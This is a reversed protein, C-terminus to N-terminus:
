GSYFYVGQYPVGQYEVMFEILMEEPDFDLFLDPYLWKAIYCIAIPKKTGGVIENSVVYVKNNLVADMNNWGARALLANRITQLASSDTAKYGPEQTNKIVLQPDKALIAEPSVIPYAVGAGAFVNIGGAMLIMDHYGAGEAVSKYDTWQEFYVRMKESSTLSKVRDNVISLYGEIFTIYEAARAETGLMVGLTSLDRTMSEPKYCDLQVVAIGAAAMTEELETPASFGFTGSYVIVVQPDLAVLQEYNPSFSSGCATVDKLDPWYEPQDAIYKTVGVIRDKAGLARIAEAVDTHLAVIRSLPKPLTVERGASDIITVTEPPEETVTLTASASKGELAATITTVGAAVASALGGAGITAVAEASSSWTVEGTVVSDSGDSYAASAWYQMGGGIEIEVDAPNVSISEVTPEAPENGGGNGGNGNDGNGCGVVSSALLLMLILGFAIAKRM